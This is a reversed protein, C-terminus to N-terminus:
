PTSREPHPHVFNAVKGAFAPDRDYDTRKLALPRLGAIFVIQLSTERAFWLAVEDATMLPTRVRIQTRATSNTETVTEGIAGSEVTFRKLFSEFASHGQARAIKELASLDRKAVSRSNTQNVNTQLIEAQGLRKSIHELTTLDTNGFFILTGANGLFTEWSERYHRKLQSLDQWVTWLKLGYGAMFGASQEITRMHGLVNAEDLIALVPFSTAPLSDVAEMRAVLLSVILRLWRAHTAMYRLPLVLYLTLGDPHTKLEDLSWDNTGTLSRQIGKSDLFKLNRHVTSLVSGREDKGMSQISAAAGAIVEGVIGEDAMREMAEYLQEHPLRDDFPDIRLTGKILRKVTVLDRKDSLQPHAAVLLIVAEIWSRASEDWHADKPSGSMVLADAILGAMEVAEDADPDVLSLPNFTARYELPVSSETFPALARVQQHMGEVTSTGHGRRAATRKLNEGKADICVVSGPYLCLNPIIGSRGKGARSGAITVIHRDDMVGCPQGSAPDRALWFSGPASALIGSAILAAREQDDTWRATALREEAATYELGRPFDLVLPNRYSM